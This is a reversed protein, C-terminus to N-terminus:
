REDALQMLELRQLIIRFQSIWQQPSGGGFGQIEYPRLAEKYRDLLGIMQQLKARQQGRARRRESWEGEVEIEQYERMLRALADETREITRTWDEMIKDGDGVMEHNRIIGLEFLLDDLDSVTGKSVGLIQSTDADLTLFNTGRGRALEELTDRRSELLANDTLLFEDTSEPERDLYVPRGGELRYSLVTDGRAMADILKPEYGFDIGMGKATSLSAAVLKEKVVEDGGQFRLYVGRIGGIRGEPHFFMTESLFPLFAASGMANKVWFVIEPEEDWHELGEDTFLGRIPRIGFVDFLGSDDPMESQLPDRESFWNVDVKIIIYDAGLERAEEMAENMPTFSIDKGFWGDAAFYYVKAPDQHALAPAGVVGVAIAALMLTIMARTRGVLGRSDWDHTKM